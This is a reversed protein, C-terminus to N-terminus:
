TTASFHCTPFPNFVEGKQKEIFIVNEWDQKEETFLLIKKVKLQKHTVHLEVVPHCDLARM